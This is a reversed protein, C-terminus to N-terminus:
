EQSSQTAEFAVMRVGHKLAVREMELRSEIIQDDAANSQAANREDTVHVANFAALGLEVPRL